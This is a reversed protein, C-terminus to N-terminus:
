SVLGENEAKDEVLNTNNESNQTTTETKSVLTKQEILGKNGQKNEGKQENLPKKQENEKLEVVESVPQNVANTTSNDNLLKEVAKVLEPNSGDAKYKHYLGAVRNQRGLSGLKKNYIEVPIGELAKATVEVKKEQKQMPTLAADSDIADQEQQWTSKGKDIEQEKKSMDQVDTSEPLM